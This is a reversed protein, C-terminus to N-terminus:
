KENKTSSSFRIEIPTDAPFNVEQGRAVVNSYVSRGAGYFGLFPGVPGLLRGMASGILGFGIGGSILRGAYNNHYAGTPIHHVRVPERGEAGNMALVMSIVRALFRKKSSAAAAGGEEDIQVAGDKGNVEVGDLRGEIDQAIPTNSIESVSSAPEMRTFMFALKGNRHWHRAPQAQTVTGSLRSGEPFILHNEPSLLPRTLVAEVPKGHQATRSDLSSTLRAAVVADAPPESGLETLESSAISVDGFEIPSLLKANFRSAAPLYQPHWPAFSWLAQKVRDMKGPAKIANIVARKRTEIQQRAAETATAIRGKKQEAAGTNFRVVTDTGASVKTRIPISKGDKLMLTDFTLEPERLPTFNGGLMTTIRIWRPANRFGTIRGSLETGPPLVERDFAYVPEVIRAHVPQNMKFRLRDTLIVRLPGGEQVVLRETQSPVPDTPAQAELSIAWCAALACLATTRGRNISCIM